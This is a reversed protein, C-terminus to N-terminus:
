SEKGKLEAVWRMVTRTSIEFDEAVRAAPEGQLVRSVMEHRDTWSTKSSGARNAERMDLMNDEHTGEYLHAPNVCRPTHCTHCLMLGPTFAGNQLRWSVRHALKTKGNVSLVGYGQKNSSGMWLWCEGSRDTM